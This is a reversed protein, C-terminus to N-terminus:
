QCSRGDKERAARWETKALVKAEANELIRFIQRDSYGMANGIEWIRMNEMYRMKMAARQNGDRLARIGPAISARAAKLEKLTMEHAERLMTLLIVGEEMRRDNGKARPMDSLVPTIRTCRAMQREVAWRQREETKALSRIRKFVNVRAREYAM